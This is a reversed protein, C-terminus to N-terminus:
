LDNEENTSYFMNTHIACVNQKPERESVGWPLVSLFELHSKKRHECMFEVCVCVCVGEWLYVLLHIKM